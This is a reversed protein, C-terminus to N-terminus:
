SMSMSMRTCVDRLSARAVRLQLYAAQRAWSGSSLSASVFESVACSLIFRHPYALNFYYERKRDLQRIRLLMPNVIHDAICRPARLRRLKDM